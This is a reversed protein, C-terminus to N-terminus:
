TASETRYDFFQCPLRWLTLGNSDPYLITMYALDEASWLSDVFLTHGVMTIPYIQDNIFQISNYYQVQFEDRYDTITFKDSSFYARIDSNPKIHLNYFLGYKGEVIIKWGAPRCLEILEFIEPIINNIRVVIIGPCYYNRSSLHHSAGLVSKNLVFIDKFPEYIEVYPDLQYLSFHFSFKTGKRKYMQLINAVLNRQFDSSLFYNWRYGLLYSFYPLYEERIKYVDNFDLMEKILVAQQEFIESDISDLFAELPKVQGSVNNDTFSDTLRSYEPLIQYLFSM